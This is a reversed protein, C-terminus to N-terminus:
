TEQAVLHLAVLPLAPNSEDIAAGAAAAVDRVTVADPGREAFLRLAEDRIRARATRDDVPSSVNVITLM